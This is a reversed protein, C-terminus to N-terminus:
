RLPLTLSATGGPEAECRQLIDAMSMKANIELDRLGARGFALAQVRGGTLGEGRCLGMVLLVSAEMATIPHNASGGEWVTGRVDMVVLYRKNTPKLTQFLQSLEVTENTRIHSGDLSRPSGLKSNERANLDVM